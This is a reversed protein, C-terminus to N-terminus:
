SAINERHEEFIEESDKSWAVDQDMGFEYITMILDSFQAKNLRSTSGGTAVMGTSIGPFMRQGRLAAMFIEKWDEVTPNGPWKVQKHVDRLSAWLKKNQDATRDDEFSAVITFPKSFPADAIRQAIERKDQESDIKYIRKM